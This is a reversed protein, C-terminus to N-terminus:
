IRRLITILQITKKAKLILESLESDASDEYRKINVEREEDKDLFTLNIATEFNSINDFIRIRFDEGNTGPYNEVHLIEM